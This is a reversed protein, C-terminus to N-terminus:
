LGAAATFTSTGTYTGNATGGPVGIGWLLDDTVAAGTPAPLTLNIGTPTGSLAAGAGYTFAAPDYEQQGVAISNAGDLMDLGSLEPDMDVNGTNEVTTTQNVAATDTGAPVSGYDLLAPSVDLALLTNIEITSSASTTGTGDGVTVNGIWNEAAFASGATTADAYYQIDVVCEYDASTDAGGTCTNGSTVETCTVVPYCTNGDAEGATDCAAAGIGSRFFDMTVAGLTSCGNSDSVTVTTTAQTTANETLTVDTGSNITITGVTPAANGVIVQNNIDDAFVLVSSCLFGALVIAASILMTRDFM